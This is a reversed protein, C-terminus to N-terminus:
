CAATFASLLSVFSGTSSAIHAPIGLQLLVPTILFGGGLGLLAALLGVTFGIISVKM